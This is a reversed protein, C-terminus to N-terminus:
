RPRALSQGKRPRTAHLAEPNRSRYPSLLLMKPDMQGDFAELSALFNFAALVGIVLIALIVRNDLGVM